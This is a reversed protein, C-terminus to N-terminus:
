ADLANEPPAADLMLLEDAEAAPLADVDKLKRGIVRTRTVADEITNHAQTLKDRVKELIDGYKAWEFKVASLLQWVESSRKEIALTQFGMRLSNLIALLTTPGAIMVKCDRSLLEALGPRRLVEAFLGETPLFLIAFDTTTPPNIYKTKIEAACTKIRAELQRAADTAAPADARDQADILRQYDETPFKADIPLLLHDAIGNGARNPLRVAFEVRDNGIGTCVNKAFQDATLVEELLAGLQVEGWIGRSKVNTLVRKLDGVSSAIQQVEGLGKHVADLRDSVLKFSEGLRAELTSQLKEDVTQRMQALQKANDDQLLKLRSEVTQRVTELRQETLSAISALQRTQTDSSGKLAGALEERAQQASKSAEDRNRSIEERMARETRECAKEIAALGAVTEASHDASFSVPRRALALLQLAILACLLIIAVVILATM